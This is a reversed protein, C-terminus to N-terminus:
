GGVGQSEYLACDQAYLDEIQRRLAPSLDHEPATTRNLRPVSVPRGLQESLWAEAKPMADLRFLARPLVAGAHDLVYGAQPRFVPDARSLDMQALVEVVFAEFSPAKAVAAQVQPGIGAAGTGGQRAFQWASYARGVPTRVLAFSPLEAWLDPAHRAIAVAPLHGLSRGYLLSSVSTGAAKPVHVFIVGAQAWRARRRRCMLALRTSEPLRQELSWLATKVRAAAERM